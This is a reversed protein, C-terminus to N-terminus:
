INRKLTDYMLSLSKNLNGIITSKIRLKYDNLLNTFPKSIKRVFFFFPNNTYMTSYKKKLLNCLFIANKVIKIDFASYIWKFNSFYNFKCSFKALRTISLM